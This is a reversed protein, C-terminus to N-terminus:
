KKLGDPDPKLTFLLSADVFHVRDDGSVRAYTALGTYDREGLELKKEGEPFHLTVTVAPTALGYQALDGADTLPVDTSKLDHLASLMEDMKEPRAEAEFPQKLKWLDGERIVEVTKGDFVFVASTVTATDFSLVQVIKEEAKTKSPAFKDRLLVFSLLGAFVVLLGITTVASRRVSM